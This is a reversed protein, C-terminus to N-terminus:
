VRSKLTFDAFGLEIYRGFSSKELVTGPGLISGPNLAFDAFRLEICRGVSSMELLIGLGPTSGPGQPHSGCIRATLGVLVGGNTIRM